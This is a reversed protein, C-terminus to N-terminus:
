VFFTRPGLKGDVETCEGPTGPQKPSRCILVVDGGKFEAEKLGRMAEQIMTGFTRMEASESSAVAISVSLKLEALSGPPKISVIKDRIRDAVVAAGALETHPMVVLVNEEAFLLPIDIDRISASVQKRTHGYLTKRQDPTLWGSVRQFNDFALLLISLPYGYRKARKVELVIMQKFVDFRYFRTIPDILAKDRLAQRLQTNEEQLHNLRSELEQLALLHQGLNAVEYKAVPHRLVGHAGLEQRLREPDPEDSKVMLVFPMHGDVFEKVYECLASATHGQITQDCFILAPAGVEILKLGESGDGAQLIGYHLDTLMVALQHRREPQPDIILVRTQSM